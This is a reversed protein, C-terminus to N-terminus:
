AANIRELFSIISFPKAIVETVKDFLAADKLTKEVFPRGSVVFVKIPPNKSPILRLLDSGNLEPMKFDLIIVEYAEPNFCHLDGPRFLATDVSHGENVLLDAMEERLEVDDDVILIKRPM